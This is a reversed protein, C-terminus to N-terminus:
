LTRTYYVKLKIKDKRFSVGQLSKGLAFDGPLLGIYNFRRVSPPLKGLLFYNELFDSIYARYYRGNADTVYDIRTDGNDEIADLYRDYNIGFQYRSYYFLSLSSFEADPVKLLRNSPSVIRAVLYKPENIHPKTAVTELPIILEASNVALQPITDLYKRVQTFDLKTFLGTGSQAYCYSDPLDYGTHKSTINQLPSGARDFDIKTFSPVYGLPFEYTYTGSKTSSSYRLKIKSSASTLRIGVIKNSAMPVVALGKFRTQFVSDTKPTSYVLKGDKGKVYIGKKLATDLLLQGLSGPGVPLDFYLTDARPKDAPKRKRSKLISDRNYFFTGTTLPTPDYSVSSSIFYNESSKFSADTIEHVVFSLDASNTDGYVYYDLALSMTLKELKVQSLGSIKGAGPVFRAFLTAASTGFNPDTAHGVLLRETDGGTENVFQNQTRVSDGQVTTAPIDFEKFRVVFRAEKKVGILSADDVCSGLFILSSFLVFGKAWWSPISTISLNRTRTVKKL